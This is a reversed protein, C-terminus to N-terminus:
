LLRSRNIDMRAISGKRAVAQRADFCVTVLRRPLFVRGYGRGCRGKLKVAENVNVEVSIQAGEQRKKLEHIEASNSCLFVLARRKRRWKEGAM